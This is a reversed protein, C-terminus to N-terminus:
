LRRAVTHAERRERGGGGGGGGGGKGRLGTAKNRAILTPLVSFSKPSPHPFTPSTHPPPQPRTRRPRVYSYGSPKEGGQSRGYSLSVPQGNKPPLPPLGSSSVCSRGLHPERLSKKDPPNGTKEDRTGFLKNERCGWKVSRTRGLTRQSFPAYKNWFVHVTYLIHRLGKEAGYPDQFIHLPSDRIQM